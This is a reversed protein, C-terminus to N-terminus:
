VLEIALAVVHLDGAVIKKFFDPTVFGEGGRARDVVEDDLEAALENLKAAQAQFGDRVLVGTADFTAFLRNARDLMVYSPALQAGDLRYVTVPVSGVRM